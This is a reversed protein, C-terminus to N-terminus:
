IRVTNQPSYYYVMKYDVQTEALYPTSPYHVEIGMALSTLM